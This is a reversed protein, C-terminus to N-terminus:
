SSPAPAYVSWVLSATTTNVGPAFGEYPAADHVTYHHGGARDLGIWLRDPAVIRDTLRGAVGLRPGFKGTHLTRAARPHGDRGLYELQRTELNFVAAQDHEEISPFNLTYGRGHQLRNRYETRDWNSTAPSSYGPCRTRSGGM